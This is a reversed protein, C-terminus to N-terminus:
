LCLFFSSFTVQEEVVSGVAKSLDSFSKLPGDLLEDFGEVQPHSVEQPAVEALQSLQGQPAHAGSNGTLSSSVNSASVGAM